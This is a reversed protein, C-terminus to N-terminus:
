LGCLMKEGYSQAAFVPNYSKPNKCVTCFVCSFIVVTVSKLSEVYGSLANFQVHMDHSSNMAFKDIM